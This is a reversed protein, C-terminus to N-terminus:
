CTRVWNWRPTRQVGRAPAAHPRPPRRVPPVAHRVHFPQRRMHARARAAGGARGEARRAPAPAAPKPPKKKKAAKVGFGGGARMILWADGVALLLLLARMRSRSPRCSRGPASTM